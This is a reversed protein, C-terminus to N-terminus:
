PMRQLESPALAAPHFRVERIAGKFWYVKNQRVGLSTRGAGLPPIAVEGELEKTGEVYSAMHGHGYVLAVWTWRGTPHIKTRDLLPLKSKTSASFLFTDLAWHTGDVRVEMLLRSGPDGAAGIQDQIHLFRQEAPGGADPDILAEVTFEAWGAIPNVPVLLGDSAGNFRLAPGGIDPALQPAGLVTTTHGGIQGPEELRWTVTETADLLPVLLLAAVLPLPSRFATVRSVIFTGAGTELRWRCNRQFALRLGL